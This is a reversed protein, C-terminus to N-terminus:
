FGLATLADLIIQDTNIYARSASKELAAALMAQLSPLFHKKFLTRRCECLQADSVSSSHEAYFHSSSIRSEIVTTFILNALESADPGTLSPASEATASNLM